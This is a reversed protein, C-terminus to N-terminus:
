HKFRERRLALEAIGVEIAHVLAIEQKDAPISKFYAVVAPRDINVDHIRMRMSLVQVSTEKTGAVPELEDHANPEPM